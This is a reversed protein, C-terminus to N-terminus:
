AGHDHNREQDKMHPLSEDLRECSEDWFRRYSETWETVEKLPAAELRCPRWQAVVGGHDM